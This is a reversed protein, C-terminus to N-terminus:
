THAPRTHPHAPGTHPYAPGAKPHAPGQTPPAQTHIPPAPTYGASGRVCPNRNKRVIWTLDSGLRSLPAPGGRNGPGNCEATGGGIPPWPAAEATIAEPSAALVARREKTRQETRRGSAAEDQLGLRVALSGGLARLEGRFGGHTM